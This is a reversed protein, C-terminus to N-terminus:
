KMSIEHKNQHQAWYLILLVTSHHHLDTKPGLLHIWLGIYMCAVILSMLSHFQAHTHSQTHTHTCAHTCFPLKFHLTYCVVHVHQYWTIMEHCWSQNSYHNAQKGKPNYPRNLESTILPPYSPHLSLTSSSTITYPNVCDGLLTVPSLTIDQSQNFLTLSPPFFLLPLPSSPPPLSVYFIFLVHM